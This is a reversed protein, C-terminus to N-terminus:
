CPRREIFGRLNQITYAQCANADTRRVSITSPMIALGRPDFNAGGGSATIQVFNDAINVRRLVTGSCQLQRNAGNEYVVLSNNQVCVSVNIGREMAVMRAWKLTSEVQMVYENYKYTRYYRQFSPIAIGALIAIIAVAVLFELLTFGRNNNM